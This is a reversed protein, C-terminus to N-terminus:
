ADLAGALLKETIFQNYRSVIIGLKLGRAQKKGEIISPM